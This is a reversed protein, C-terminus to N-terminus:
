ERRNGGVLESKSPFTMVYRYVVQAKGGAALDVTWLLGRRLPAGREAQTYPDPRAGATDLTIELGKDDTVPIRDAIEVRAPMGLSSVLDVTVTTEVITAGRMLGGASEEVRANRAVRIREEVGM